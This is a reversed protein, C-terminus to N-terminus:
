ATADLLQVDYPALTRDASRSRAAPDPPALWVVM